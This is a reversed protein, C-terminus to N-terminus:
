KLRGDGAAVRELLADLAGRDFYHGARVVGSIRGLNEASETPDADLIVLDSVAGPVIRGLDARGLFRAADSTTMQLIRLPSIGAIALERFEQHLAFGPVEWGGGTSDSGALMSVGEEDLMAVLRKSAEYGERMIERDEPSYLREFEATVRKWDELTDQSVYILNPNSSFSPDDARYIAKLRILTPVQWTETAKLERMTARCHQADFTQLAARTPALGGAEHDAAAPNIVRELLAWEALKDVIRSNIPPFTPFETKSRVEARIKEASTSCAILLGSAPGLHEIAHMGRQSAALIDVGAPVHGAVPLGVKEAENLAAFLVPGSVLGAKIFDAGMEKQHRVTERVQAPTSANLPTLLAGPTALLAPAEKTLPLKSERRERLIADSGSMQRFGTIGNALMLALDGSPDISGLPHAHMDNYGPVLFKGTGDIRRMKGSQSEREVTPDSDSVSSIRGNESMVYQGPRLEGSTPDVVTINTILLRDAQEIKSVPRDPDRTIYSLGGYVLALGLVTALFVKRKWGM